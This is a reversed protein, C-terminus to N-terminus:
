QNARKIEIALVGLAEKEPPYIDRIAQLLNDRSEGLEGGIARMDEHDLMAEFSPYTRVDKVTVLCTEDGSRFLIEWGPQIKKMSEYAVRVEVTKTGNAVLRFYPKKLNMDKRPAPENM